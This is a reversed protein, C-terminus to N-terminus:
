RVNDGERGFLKSRTELLQFRVAVKFLLVSSEPDCELETGDFLVFQVLKGDGNAGTTLPVEITEDLRDSVNRGFLGDDDGLRDGLLEQVFGGDGSV